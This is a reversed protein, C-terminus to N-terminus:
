LFIIIPIKCDPVQCVMSRMTSDKLIIKDVINIEAGTINLTANVDDTNSKLSTSEVESSVVYTEDEKFNIVYEQTTYFKARNYYYANITVTLTHRGPVVRVTLDSFRNIDISKGDIEASIIMGFPANFKFPQDILIKFTADYNSISPEIYASSCGSLISILVIFYINKM